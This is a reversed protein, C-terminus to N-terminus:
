VGDQVIEKVAPQVQVKDGPRIFSTGKIIVQDQPSLGQRVEIEEPTRLGTLIPKSQVTGVQGKAASVTYVVSKGNERVVAEIPVSLTQVKEILIIECDILMGARLSSSQDPRATLKVLRTQPSVVPSIATIHGNLIGKGLAASHFKVSQGTHVRELAQEPLFLEIEPRSNQALTLIPNPPGVFSGPDLNRQTVIGSLPAVLRYNQIQAQYLKITALAQNYQARAADIQEPRTGDLLQQLNARAGNIQQQMALIQQQSGQLQTRSVELQQQTIVGESALSEQRLLDRESQARSAQLQGLSAELQKVTARAQAIQTKLPGNLSQDLNAKAAQASARAQLLQADLETHEIEGLIQGIGVAQGEKVSLSLLRGNVKPVLQVEQQAVVNGPLKLTDAMRGKRPLSVAVATPPPVQHKLAEERAKKQQVRSAVLGIFLLVLLSIGAITLWKKNM